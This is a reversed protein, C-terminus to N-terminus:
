PGNRSPGPVIGRHFPTSGANTWSNTVNRASQGWRWSRSPALSLERLCGMRCGVPSADRGGCLRSFRSLCAATSFAAPIVLSSSWRPGLCYLRALFTAALVDFSYPKAESAHWLLHDSCAFLLVAWPVASPRLLQRALWPILLLAACSALFSPLRLAYTGDGLLLVISKELWLFLPPAAEAFELPGLLELFTKDLVNLVLAAEDHWMSPNRGYHLLRLVLGFLVFSETWGWNRRLWALCASM